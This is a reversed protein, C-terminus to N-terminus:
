CKTFYSWDAKYAVQSGTEDVIRSRWVDFYKKAGYDNLLYFSMSVDDQAFGYAIKERYQGINRETTLIQKGPLNVRTCLINMDKSNPPTDNFLGPITPLLGSNDGLLDEAFGGSSMPPLEVLFQNPRAFGLKSSVRSKLENISSM